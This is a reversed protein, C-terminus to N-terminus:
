VKTAHPRARPVPSFEPAFNSSKELTATVMACTASRVIRYDIAKIAVVCAEATVFPVYQIGATGLWVTLLFTEIM